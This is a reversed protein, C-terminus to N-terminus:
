QPPDIEKKKQEIQFEENRGPLATGRRMPLPKKGRPLARTQGPLARRNAENLRLKDAHTKQAASQIRQEAHGESIEDIAKRRREPVDSFLLRDSSRLSARSPKSVNQPSLQDEHIGNEAAEQSWSPDNDRYLRLVHDIIGTGEGLPANEDVKEINKKNGMKLPDEGRPHLWLDIGELPSEKGNKAKERAANYANAEKNTMSWDGSVKPQGSMPKAPRGPKKGMNLALADEEPIDGTMLLAGAAKLNTREAELAQTKKLSQVHEGTMPRTIDFADPDEGALVSEHEVKARHQTCLALASGRPRSTHRVISTAPMPCNSGSIGGVLHGGNYQCEMSNTRNHNPNVLHDITGVIQPPHVTHVEYGDPDMDTTIREPIVRRAREQRPKRPIDTGNLSVNESFAM